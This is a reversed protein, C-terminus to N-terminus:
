LVGLATDPRCQQCALRGDEALLSLVQDRSIAKTRSGAMRCWGQHVAVVRRGVGIGQEVVWDPPPPPPRRAALEALRREEAALWDRARTLDQERVRVLFRLQEVRSTSNESM